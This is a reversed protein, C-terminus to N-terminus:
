SGLLNLGLSVRRATLNQRGTSFTFIHSFLKNVFHRIDNHKQNSQNKTKWSNRQHCSFFLLMKNIYIVSLFCEVFMGAPM